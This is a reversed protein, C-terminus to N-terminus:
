FKGITIMTQIVSLLILDWLNEVKEKIIWGSYKELDVECSSILILILIILLKKM